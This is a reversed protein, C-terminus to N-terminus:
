IRNVASTFRIRRVYQVSSCLSVFHGYTPHTCLIFNHRQSSCLIHNSFSQSSSIQSLTQKVIMKITWSLVSFMLLYWLANQAVNLANQAVNQELLNLFVFSVSYLLCFVYTQFSFIYFKYLQFIYRIKYVSHPPESDKKNRGGVIVLKCKLRNKKKSSSFCKRCVSFHLMKKRSRM